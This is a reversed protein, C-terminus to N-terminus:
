PQMDPAQGAHEQIMPFMFRSSVGCCAHMCACERRISIIQHTVDMEMSQLSDMNCTDPTHCRLDHGKTSTERNGLDDEVSVCAKQCFCVELRELPQCSFGLWVGRLGEVCSGAVSATGLRFRLSPLRSPWVKDCRGVTAADVLGLGFLFPCGAYMVRCERHQLKM